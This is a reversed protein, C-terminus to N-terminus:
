TGSGDSTKVAEDIVTEMAERRRARQELEEDTLRPKLAEALDAEVRARPVGYRRRSAERVEEARRPESAPKAPITEVSFPQLTQGEVLTTMAAYWNPMTTLDTRTFPPSMYREMLEADPQGMRFAVLTGANGFISQTIRQNALQSIFQNALVLGLGFKRGESLMDIFSETAISQFEGVYAYFLRRDVARARVRTMAAAQLKALVVMGLFRSTPGSLLGKALNVLLIKGGDMVTRFDITSRRQGFINRVLPDFVFEEIKSSVYGGM